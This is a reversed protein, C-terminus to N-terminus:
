YDDEAAILDICRRRAKMRAIPIAAQPDSSGRASMGASVGVEQTPPAVTEGVLTESRTRSVVRRVTTPVEQLTFVVTQFHVSLSVVITDTSENDPVTRASFGPMAETVAYEAASGTSLLEAATTTEGYLVEVSAGSKIAKNM